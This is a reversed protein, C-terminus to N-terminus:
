KMYRLALYMYPMKCLDPDSITAPLGPPQHYKRSVPCKAPHTIPHVDDLGVINKLVSSGLHWGYAHPHTDTVAIRDMAFGTGDIAPSKKVYHWNM